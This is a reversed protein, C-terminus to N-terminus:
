KVRGPNKRIFEGWNKITGAAVPNKLQLFHCVATALGDTADLDKPMIELNYM